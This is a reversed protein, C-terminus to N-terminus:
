AKGVVRRRGRWDRWKRGLGVMAVVAAVAAVPVLDVLIALGIKKRLGRVASVSTPDVRIQQQQAAPLIRPFPVRAPTTANNNFSQPPAVTQNTTPTSNLVIGSLTTPAARATSTTGTSQTSVAPITAAPISPTPAVVPTLVAVATPAVTAPVRSRVAANGCNPALLAFFQDRLGTFDTACPYFGVPDGNAVSKRNAVNGIGVCSPPQTSPNLLQASFALVYPSPVTLRHICPFHIKAQGLGIAIIKKWGRFCKCNEQLSNIKWGTAPTGVACVASQQVVSGPGVFVSDTYLCVGKGPVVVQWQGGGVDRFQVQQNADAANCGDVISWSGAGPRADATAMLASFCQLGVPSPTRSLLHYTISPLPPWPCLQLGAPVNIGQQATTHTCTHLLLLLASLFPTPFSLSRM